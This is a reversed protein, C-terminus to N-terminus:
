QLWEEADEYMFPREEGRQVGDDAEVTQVPQEETTDDGDLDMSDTGPPIEIM